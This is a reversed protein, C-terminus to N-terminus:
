TTPLHVFDSVWGLLDAQSIALPLYQLEELLCEGDKSKAEETTTDNRAAALLKAAEMSTMSALEIARQPGVVDAIRGDRSTRLVTGNDGQPLYEGLSKTEDTSEGVGFLRLDDANDLVLVWSPQSQIADRVAEFLDEGELRIDVSLKAAITKCDHTFTAESDAHVWFVGCM